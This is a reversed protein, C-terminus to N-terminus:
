KTLKEMHEVFSKATELRNTGVLKGQADLFVIGPVPVDQGKYKVRFDYAHPRRIIIRM